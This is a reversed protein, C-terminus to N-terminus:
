LTPHHPESCARKQLYGSKDKETLVSKEEHTRPTNAPNPEKWSVATLGKYIVTWCSFM